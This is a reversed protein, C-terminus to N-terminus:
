GSIGAIEDKILLKQKKLEHLQIDDPHLTKELQDIQGALTEHKTKLSDLRDEFSM